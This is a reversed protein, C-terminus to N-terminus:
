NRAPASTPANEPVPTFSLLKLESSKGTGGIVRLYRRVMGNQEDFRVRLMVQDPSNGFAKGKGHLDQELIGLLGDVTYDHPDNVGAPRGNRLLKAIHGRRVSVAYVDTDMGPQKIQFTADYSDIGAAQWRQRAAALNEESLEDLPNRVILVVVVALVVVAATIFIWRRLSRRRQGPLQPRAPPPRRADPRLIDPM